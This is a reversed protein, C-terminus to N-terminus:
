VCFFSWHWFGCILIADCRANIGSCHGFGRLCRLFRFGNIYDGSFIIGEDGSLTFLEEIGKECRGLPGGSKEAGVGCLDVGGVHEVLEAGQGEKGFSPDDKYFTGVFKDGLVAPEEFVIEVVGRGGACEYQGYVGPVGAGTERFLQGFDAFQEADGLWFGPKEGVAEPFVGDICM